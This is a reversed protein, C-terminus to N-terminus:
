VIKVEEELRIGFKIFVSEKIKSALELIDQGSANGYNVLILAHKEYVGADGIRKGKWGCNEILWAAPVKLKNNLYYEPLDNFNKKLENFLDMEIFPNKFFSGANGLFKPNPLKNKRIKCVTDYVYKLDPETINFKKIENRIDKYDTYLKKKLSLRYKVSTIVFKDILTNKFISDRYSFKCKDFNMEIFERKNLDFGKLGIFVTDQEVGYAGINQVPAAGVKGPILALNELGYYQNKVCSTVFEHWNEGAGVEMILNDDKSDIIKIGKFNPSIILGHFDNSFLINSGGGLILIRDSISIENLLSIIEDENKPAAFFDARCDINFTNHPRLSFNSLVKM